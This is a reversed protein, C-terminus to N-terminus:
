QRWYGSGYSALIEAGKRVWKFTKVAGGAGLYVNSRLRTAHNSNIYRHWSSRQPDAADVCHTASAQLLYLPRSGGAEYRAECESNTLMEGAYTGLSTGPPIDQVAFAGLGHVASQRIEVLPHHSSVLPVPERQEAYHM